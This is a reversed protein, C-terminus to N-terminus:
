DFPEVLAAFEFIRKSEELPAIQEFMSIFFLKSLKKLCTNQDQQTV